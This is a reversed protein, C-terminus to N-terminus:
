PPDASRLRLYRLACRSVAQTARLREELRAGGLRRSHGRMLRFKPLRGRVAPVQLVLQRGDLQLARAGRAVGFGGGHM